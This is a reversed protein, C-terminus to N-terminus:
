SGEASSRRARAPETFSGEWRGRTHRDVEDAVFPQEKSPVGITTEGDVRYAFALPVGDAFLVSRHDMLQLHLHPESSNGSNGCRAIVEGASVTQRPRVVVSKRQLHALVAWVGDGIAIVVHNGLIRGPGLLERVSGEVLLYLLAPWSNRSWHDREWDHTRVVVGDAPARVEQGFAPFETPRRAPPWWVIPPRSGASPEYVLDIAYTQGYAHLGHSPVRDASSNLARWRGTVPSAVEVPERERPAGLRFYFALAAAFLALGFWVPVLDTIPGLVLLVCAIWV